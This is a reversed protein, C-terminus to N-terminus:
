KEKLPKIYLTTTNSFDINKILDTFEQYNLNKIQEYLNPDFSKYNIIGGMILRNIGYINDTLKIISSLYCKKKRNFTEELIDNKLEQKILKELKAPHKSEVLLTILLYNDALELYFDLNETIIKQKKLEEGFTSTPGILADFYISIYQLWEKRSLPYSNMDIKIGILFKPITVNMKIIEKKRRVKLPEHYKKPIINNEITEKQYYKNIVQIAQKPDVNGTIVIFMNNPNYFTNYCDYLNEKTISSVSEITGGIDFRMPHNLFINEKIKQMGKRLPSDEYMKLEQIIIGKEKEVNEDTFYPNNVYNLLIEMNREFQDPGSWLYTTQVYNTYANANAGTKDFEEFPSSGDEQEFMKHELFHAIGYPVHYKKGNNIFDVVNAGYKTTYTVYVDSINPQPVIYIELGNPLIYSYLDLDLHTISTKKM